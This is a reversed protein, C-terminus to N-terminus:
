FGLHALEGYGAGEVVYHIAGYGMANVKVEIKTDQAICNLFEDVLEFIGSFKAMEKERGYNLSDKFEQFKAKDEVGSYDPKWAQLSEIDMGLMGQLLQNLNVMAAGAMPHETVSKMDDFSLEVSVNSNLAFAPGSMGAM